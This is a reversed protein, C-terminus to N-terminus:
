FRGWYRYGFCHFCPFFPNSRSWEGQARTPCKGQLRQQFKWSSFVSGGGGAQWGTQYGTSSRDRQDKEVRASSFPCIFEISVVTM